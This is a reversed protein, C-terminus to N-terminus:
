ECELGRFARIRGVDGFYGLNTLERAANTNKPNYLLARRYFNAADGINGRLKQLHGIQLNLDANQPMLKEARAYAQRAEALAGSEKLAHGLQVWIGGLEPRIDLAKTYYTVAGQWDKRNRAANGRAIPVRTRGLIHARKGALHHLMRFTRAIPRHAPGLLRSRENREEIQIEVCLSDLNSRADTAATNRAGPRANGHVAPNADGATLGNIRSIQDALAELVASDFRQALTDGQEFADADALAQRASESWNATPQLLADFTEAIRDIYSARLFTQAHEAMAKRWVDPLMAGRDCQILGASHGAGFAKLASALGASDGTAFTLGFGGSVEPLAGADSCIVPTGALMAEAVTMGFGEHMSPLVFADADAFLARIADPALDFAFTVAIDPKLSSACEDLSAIFKADSFQTQGALTLEIPRALSTKIRDLAALLLDVGKSRVFRGCFLLRLPRSTDISPAPASLSEPANPGFLPVVRIDRAIGYGEIQRASFASAALITDAVAFNRIQQYSAHILNEQEPPCYQPQTVNHFYVVLRADRRAHHMLHHMESFIGYHFYYLDSTRFHEDRLVERWDNVVHVRTDKYSSERCYIQLDLNRRQTVGLRDLASVDAILAESIADGPNVIGTIFSIRPTYNNKPM